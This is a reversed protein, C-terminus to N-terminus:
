SSITISLNTIYANNIQLLIFTRNNCQSHNLSEEKSCDNGTNTM